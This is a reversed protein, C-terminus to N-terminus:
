EGVKWFEIRMEQIRVNGPGGTKEFTISFTKASGDFSVEAFGGVDRMDSGVSAEREVLTAGDTVNDLKVLSTATNSGSAAQFGVRYRGELGAPVTLSLATIPGGTTAQQPLSETYLYSAGFM